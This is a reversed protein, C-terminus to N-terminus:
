EEGMMDAMRVLAAVTTTMCNLWDVTCLEIEFGTPIRGTLADQVITVNDMLARAKEMWLNDGTANYYNMSSMAINSITADIPSRYLYQEVACPTNMFKCGYKDPLTNWSVFQDESWRLMEEVEKMLEADPHPYRALLYDIFPDTACHTLNRYPKLGRVTVDEFQATFNWATVINERMWKCGLDMTDHFEKIGYDQELRLFFNLLTGAMAKGDTDPEGTSFIVKVPFLGDAAQHKQFTAAIGVARDLYEKEGTLDYLDLFGNAPFCAELMMTRDQNEAFSSAVQGKYYTPPFFALPAGEPQSQEIIFAAVKRAIALAEDRLEPILRAVMCEMSVTSGLMKCLYTNYAYSLDVDDNELWHQVYPRTHLYVLAQRAATRYPRVKGPYPGSFPFDRFFNREAVKGTVKGAGDLAEVTLHVPGVPLDQWVPSLDAKPSAAEFTWKGGKLTQPDYPLTHLTAGTEPDPGVTAYYLHSIAKGDGYDELTFRYKAAGEQEPFDFAPAYIFKLAYENWFPHTGDTGPRVPIQYEAQAQSNLKEFYTECDNQGCAALLLSALEFALSRATTKM